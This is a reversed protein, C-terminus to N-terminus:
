RLIKRTYCRGTATTIRLIYVGSSIAELHVVAKGNDTHQRLLEHGAPNQITINYDKYFDSDIILDGILPNPYVAFEENMEEGIATIASISIAVDYALNSNDKGDNVFYTFTAEAGATTGSVFALLDIDGVPIIAPATLAVNDFILQGTEPWAVIAIHVLVDNPDADAFQSIFDEASFRLIDNAIVERVFSGGTPKMNTTGISTNSYQMPVTRAYALVRYQYSAGEALGTDVYTLDNAPLTDIAIFNDNETQGRELIYGEASLLPSAWTLSIRSADVTTAVLDKAGETQSRNTWLGEPYEAYWIYGESDVVVSQSFSSTATDSVMQVSGTGDFKLLGNTNTGCLVNGANDIAFGDYAVGHFDSEVPSYNMWTGNDLSSIVNQNTPYGIWIEGSTDAIVASVSYYELSSNSTNYSTWTNTKKDLVALGGGCGVGVWLNGESDTTLDNICNFDPFPSNGSHYNVWADGDFKSIGDGYAGIWINDESDIHLTSVNNSVIGSNEITYARWTNGDFKVLGANYCAFWTNGNNDTKIARIDSNLLGSNTHDYHKWALNEFHSVGDGEGGAGAYAVWLSNNDGIAIASVSNNLLGSNDRHYRHWNEQAPVSLSLCSFFLLTLPAKM